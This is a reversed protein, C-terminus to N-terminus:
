RKESAAQVMNRVMSEFSYRPQWDTLQRLKTNDGIKERQRRHLISTDVVVFNKWDLRKESFAIEVFERVSHSEGSSVIFDEPKECSLILRFADIFDSAHSWDVRAELDGLILTDKVGGAIDSVGQAIKQSLYHPQRLPSEHNYLIGSAVFIKHKDRYERCLYVGQAKTIGYFGQPSLPTQENQITGNEGSFLLSSAAYFVRTSPSVKRVAELVSLFRQVHVIHAKQYEDLFNDSTNKQSSTHYAALYYIEDINETELFTIISEPQQLSLDPLCGYNSTRGIGSVRVGEKELQMRMLSGDQGAYGIILVHRM